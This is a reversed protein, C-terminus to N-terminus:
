ILSKNIHKMFQSQKQSHIYTVIPKPMGNFTSAAASTYAGMNPFVIWDGVNLEPVQVEKAVCDISDCTPGFFTGVTMKHNSSSHMTRASNFNLSKDLMQYFPVTSIHKGHINNKYVTHDHSLQTTINMYEQMLKRQENTPQKVETKMGDLLFQNASFLKPHAHDFMVCNFSGYVGDNIYYLYKNDSQPVKRKGQVFAFLTSFSTAMYRGPEGIINLHPFQQKPFYVDLASCIVSAFEEFSPARGPDEVLDSGGNQKRHLENMEVSSFTIPHGPFGGGVDLMTFRELGLKNEAIDFVQRSLALASSYTNANFCGSGIHFSTGIVKLGLSKSIRLLTEVTELPAGFKSGFRMLSGSDDPLLRLVLEANPCYDRIKYLEDENDFTMKKIGNKYAYQLDSISKVPNAFIIENPNIGLKLVQDIEAASACDFGTGLDALTQVLVEDPNCKVAYFPRVRPLQKIWRHYQRQVNGVDSVVFARTNNSKSAETTLDHYLHNLAAFDNPFSPISQAARAHTAIFRARVLAKVAHKVSSSRLLSAM